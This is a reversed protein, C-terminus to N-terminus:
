NAPRVLHTKNILKNVKKKDTTTALDNIFTMRFAYQDPEPGELTTNTQKVRESGLTIM